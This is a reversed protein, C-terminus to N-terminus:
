RSSNNLNPSPSATGSLGDALGGLREVCAAVQCYDTLEPYAELLRGLQRVAAPIHRAFGPKGAVRSLHGYAGLAQMLRHIVIVPYGAEFAEPDFDPDLQASQELYQLLLKRRALASLELYPDWLLSALDYQRPGRRAGQFDLYVPVGDRLAVNTSQFDRHLFHPTWLDGAADALRDLEADLPAPGWGLFGQLFSRQFYGSEWQRIFDRRYDPNHTCQVKFGGSARYQMRALDAVVQGYCALVAPSEGQRRHRDYLLEEGADELAFWGRQLNAALIEPVSVGAQRLHTAVYLFSQNEDRGNGGTVPSENRLGVLSRPPQGLRCYRRPSGGDGVPRLPEAPAPPGFRREFADSLFAQFESSVAELM